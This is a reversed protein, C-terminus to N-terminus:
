PRHGLYVLLARTHNSMLLAEAPGIEVKIVQGGAGHSRPSRISDIFTFLAAYNPPILGLEGARAALKKLAAGDAVTEDIETIRYRLGSEVASYHERVAETWNSESYAADGRALEDLADTWGRDRLLQECSTVLRGLVDPVVIAHAEEDDTASTPFVRRLETEDRALDYGDPRLRISHNGGGTRVVEVQWKSELLLTAAALEDFTFDDWVSSSSEHGPIAARLIQRCVDNTRRWEDRAHQEAYEFALRTGDFFGHQKEFLRGETVLRRTVHEVLHEPVELEKGVEAITTEFVDASGTERLGEWLRQALGLELRDEPGMM